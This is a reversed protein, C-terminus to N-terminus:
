AAVEQDLLDCAFDIADAIIAAMWAKYGHRLADVAADAPWACGDAHDRRRDYSALVDTVFVTEVVELAALRHTVCCQPLAPTRTGAPPVISM